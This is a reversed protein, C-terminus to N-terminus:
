VGAERKFVVFDTGVPTAGVQRFMTALQGRHYSSHNVVHVLLDALRNRFPDGALTKYDLPRDLDANSLSDVFARREAEIEALKERLAGLSPAALWDPFATPNEGLWRRLWIWEAAVIHAFTGLISPFSSPIAATLQEASLGAIVDVVRANAWEDYAYLSRIEEATM